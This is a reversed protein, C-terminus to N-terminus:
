RSEEKEDAGVTQPAIIQELHDVVVGDKWWWRPVRWRLQADIRAVTPTRGLNLLYDQFVMEGPEIWVKGASKLFTFTRPLPQGEVQPVMEWRIDAWWEDTSRHSASTQIAAPFGVAVGSDAQILDMKAAGINKVSVRLHLVHGVDALMLWHATAEICSRPKFTRGHVFKGYAWVGGIIVAIATVVSQAASALRNIADSNDHLLDWLDYSGAM